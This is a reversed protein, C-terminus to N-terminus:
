SVAESVKDLLEKSQSKKSTASLTSVPVFHKMQNSTYRTQQGRYYRGDTGKVYKTDNMISPPEYLAQFRSADFSKPLPWYETYGSGCARPIAYTEPMVTSM